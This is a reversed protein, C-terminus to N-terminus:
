TSGPQRRVAKARGAFRCCWNRVSEYIVEAGRELLLEEIDRLSLNFRHYQHVTCRVVAALFRVGHYPSKSEKMGGTKLKVNRKM